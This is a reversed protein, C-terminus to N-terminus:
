DYDGRARSVAGLRGYVVGAQDAPAHLLAKEYEAAANVYDASEFHTDGLQLCVEYPPPEALVQELGAEAEGEFIDPSPLTHAPLPPRPAVAGAEDTDDDFGDFAFSPMPEEATPPPSPLTPGPLTPGHLPQANAQAVLHALPGFGETVETDEGDIFGGD